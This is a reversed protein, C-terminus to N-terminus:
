VTAKDAKELDMYWKYVFKRIEEYDKQNFKMSSSSLDLDADETQSYLDEYGM